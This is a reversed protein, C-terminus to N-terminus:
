MLLLAVKRAAVVEHLMATGSLPKFFFYPPQVQSFYLGQAETFALSLFKFLMKFFYMMLSSNPTPTVPPIHLFLIFLSSFCNALNKTEVSCPSSLIRRVAMM